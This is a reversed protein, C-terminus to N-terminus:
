EHGSEQQAYSEFRGCAARLLEPTMSLYRQTSAIDVHGLYTALASLLRQVNQGTRYWHIVRHVAATHRLDHLRPQYRAQPERQVHALARVRRFLTSAREYSLHGGTRTAFFASAEGCPQPLLRRQRAYAQLEVALQPGVPVLRTKHFKTDRVRLIAEALDVDALTLGLAESVRLGTSYLVLLLVRCTTAQLPSSPSHLHVTAALLGRMEEASYIHPAMPPPKRPSLPPLPCAQALGRAIAFRYFRGLIGYKYAAFATLPGDPVVFASVRAADIDDVPVHGMARGFSRLTRAEGRFLRGRDQQHRIYATLVQSLQM